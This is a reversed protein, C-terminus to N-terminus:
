GKVSSLLTGRHIREQDGAIPLVGLERGKSNERDKHRYCEWLLVRLVVSSRKPQIRQRGVLCHTGIKQSDEPGLM